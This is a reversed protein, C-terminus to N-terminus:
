RVNDKSELDAAAEVLVRVCGARGLSAASILAANGFYIQCANAAFARRLGGVEGYIWVSDAGSTLVLYCAVAASVVAIISAFKLFTGVNLSGELRRPTATAATTSTFHTAPVTSAASAAAGDDEPFKLKVGDFAACDAAIRRRQTLGHATANSFVGGSDIRIMALLRSAGDPLVSIDLPMGLAWELIEGELPRDIPVAHVRLASQAAVAFNVAVGTAAPTWAPTVSPGPATSASASAPAPEFDDSSVRALAPPPPAHTQSDTSISRKSTAASPIASTADAAAAASAKASVNAQGTSRRRPTTARM